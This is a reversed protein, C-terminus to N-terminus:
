NRKIVIKRAEDGAVQDFFSKVEAYSDSPIRNKFVELMATSTLQNKDKNYTYNASYTAYGCKRDVFQPIADMTFGDPLQYITTDNKSEAYPFFYDQKRNDSLPMYIPWFSYIRPNLFMKSGASFQPIKEIELDIRINEKDLRTMKFDDPQKFGFSNVILDKQEDSKATFFDELKERIDGTVFLMSSTKGSGDENLYIKTVLSIKNRSPDSVPTSVLVGGEETVLLAYRNETFSGLYNFDATKSTCELWISDNKQPVCLIMHTFDNCPFYPDVPQQNYHCNILAVHSRIGITKLVAHLYFSLAKCDGYKKEDTFKAAFPQWGGIGLQISVYRFNQQLYNYLVAIKEKESPVDKVMNQFFARREEPLVDLNKILEKEWLGFNKWSSMDGNSNYIKFKNPALRIAPDTWQGGASGKEDKIAALDKVSWKYTITKGDDTSDPLIKTRQEKYRVGISKPVKIIFSSLEVAENDEQITYDPYSLTGSYKLEYMFDVTVPYSPAGISIYNYIGESILGSGPAQQSLDKKKYKVILTGSRDFVKIDCHELSIYKNTFELFFLSGEAVKNLVTIVKHVKYIARDVDTVEFSIEESRKVVNAGLMLSEPISEASYTIQSFGATVFVLLGFLLVTIKKM